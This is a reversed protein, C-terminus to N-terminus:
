WRRSYPTRTFAEKQGLLQLRCSNSSRLNHPPPESGVRMKARRNISNNGSWFHSRVESEDIRIVKGLAKTSDQEM